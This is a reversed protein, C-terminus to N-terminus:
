PNFRIWGSETFITTLLVKREDLTMLRSQANDVFEITILETNIYKGNYFVHRDIFAQRTSEGEYYQDFFLNGLGYHLFSDKYFEIAQPQHGQSGSVIVAGLEAAHRFDMQLEPLAKYQYYELHSFAMVPLYEDEKILNFENSLYDWNCHWTGPLTSTASSYGTPKANCGIFAIKNGNHNIYFPERAEELNAGGAFYGWGREKYLQLTYLVDEPPRDIFHDGTMDVIDTGIYELLKIYEPRSCFTLTEQVYVPKECSPSFAIENSIHTIDANWLIDRIREAPYSMGQQEMLLATARVMATVGTMVLTTMEEAFRNSIPIIQHLIAADLTLFYSQAEPDDSIISFDIVLPYVGILFDRQIPSNGDVAIVKWRPEIDEFPIISWVETGNKAWAYDLLQSIPMIKVVNSAPEGWLITLIANTQKDLVLQKIPFGVVNGLSWFGKLDASTVQDTLTPFPAVLAYVWQSVPQSSGIEIRANSSDKENTLQWDSTLTIKERFNEPLLPDLWLQISFTNDTKPASTNTFTIETPTGNGVCGTVLVLTTITFFFLNWSKVM